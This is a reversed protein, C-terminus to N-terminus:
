GPAVRMRGLGLGASLQDQWGGGVAVAASQRNGMTADILDRDESAVEGVELVGDVFMRLGTQTPIRGSSTHPSGLLGLYELDQMVNRITAASVKESMTQSLTRSGVPEGNAVYAEVIERFIQRSRENLEGIVSSNPNKM